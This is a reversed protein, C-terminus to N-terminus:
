SGGVEGSFGEATSGKLALVKEERVNLERREGLLPVSPLVASVM